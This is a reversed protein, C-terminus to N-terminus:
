IFDLTSLIGINIGLDGKADAYEKLLLIHVDCLKLSRTYNILPEM